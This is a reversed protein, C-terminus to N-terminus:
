LHLCFHSSPPTLPGTPLPLPFHFHILHKLPLMTYHNLVPIRAGPQKAKSNMGRGRREGCTGERNFSTMVTSVTYLQSSIHPLRQLTNMIIDLWIILVMFMKILYFHHRRSHFLEYLLQRSPELFGSTEPLKHDPQPM